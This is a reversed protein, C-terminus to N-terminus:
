NSKRQIPFETIEEQRPCRIEQTNFKYCNDSDDKFVLSHANFPTPYKIIIDPTPTSCYVVLLGICLSILFWFTDIKDLIFM